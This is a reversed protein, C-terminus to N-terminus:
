QATASSERRLFYGEGWSTLILPMDFGKDIKTRLYRIYVDVANSTMPSEEYLHQWIMSRQVVKGQQRALFLLISFERPTLRITRGGRRVLHAARDIELDFIRIIKEAARHKRRLLARLRALLEPVEVPRALYDDAGADLATVKDQLASGNGIVLLHADVGCRRWDRFLDLGGKSPSHNYVIIDYMQRRVSDDAQKLVKATDVHFGEDMFTRQLSPAGNEFLFIQM